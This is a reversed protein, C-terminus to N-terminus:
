MASTVPRWRFGGDMTRQCVKETGAGAIGGFAALPRRRIEKEVRRMAKAESIEIGTALPGDSSNKTFVSWAWGAAIAEEVFRSIDGVGAREAPARTV